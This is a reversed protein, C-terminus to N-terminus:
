VAPGNALGIVQDQANVCGIPMRLTELFRGKSVTGKMGTMFYRDPWPLM